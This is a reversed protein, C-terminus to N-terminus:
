RKKSTNSIKESGEALVLLQKALEREPDVLVHVVVHALEVDGHDAAICGVHSEGGVPLTFVAFNSQLGQVSFGVSQTYSLPAGLMRCSHVSYKMIETSNFIGTKDNCEFYPPVSRAVQSINAVFTQNHHVSNMSYYLFQVKKEGFSVPLLNLILGYHLPWMTM